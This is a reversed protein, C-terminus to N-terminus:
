VARPALETWSGGFKAARGDGSSTGTLRRRVWPAVHERYYASGKLRQIEPLDRLHWWEGPATLGVSELVRAAVRHHGRANMHLRDVSWFEPGALERDFWNYATIVDPRHQLRAEVAHSLADGRAQVVRGLPLGASPNAGSLVILQVGEEDCRRVVHDFIAVIREIGTRPRLMDNGGGNFSLHTPKLALAPELQEDVIPQVLKGRIALNAYQIPEGIADAWGQAALDAWGRVTGDPLEDGVGETFSDGIAVYRVSAM